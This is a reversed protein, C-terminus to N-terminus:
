RERRGKLGDEGFSQRQLIGRGVGGTETAGGGPGESRMGGSVPHEALVHRPGSSKSM